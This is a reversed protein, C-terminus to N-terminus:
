KGRRRAIYFGNSASQVKEVLVCRNLVRRPELVLLGACLCFWVRALSENRKGEENVDSCPETLPQFILIKQCYGSAM